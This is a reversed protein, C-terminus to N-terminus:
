TTEPDYPCSVWSDIWTPTVSLQREVFKPVKFFLSCFFVDCNFYFISTFRSLLRIKYIKVYIIKEWESMNIVRGRQRLLDSVNHNTNQNFLKYRPSCRQKTQASLVPPLPISVACSHHEYTNNKDTNDNIENKYKNDKNNFPGNM